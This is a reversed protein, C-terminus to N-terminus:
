LCGYYNPETTPRGTTTIVVQRGREGEEQAHCINITGSTNVFGTPLYTFTGIDSTEDMTMRETGGSAQQCSLATVRIEEGADLTSDADADAWVTWGTGWENADDGANSATINVRQRRKIAESRALQMSSVLSNTATTMCNNRVMSDYAPLAVAVLVGVVSVAIMLEILTFGTEKKM